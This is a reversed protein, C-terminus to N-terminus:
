ESAMREAVLAVFAMSNCMSSLIWNEDPAHANTGVDKDSLMICCPAHPDFLYDPGSGWSMPILDVPAPSAIETATRHVLQIFPSSIPAKSAGYGFGTRTVRIDSFGHKDLHARLLGEATEVTLGPVLRFDLKARARAPIITKPGPGNYGSEIGCVTLCPELYVAKKLDLGRRNMVTRTLGYEDEFVKELSRMSNGLAALDEASPKEVADNIGEILINEDMDKISALAWILRWAANPIAGAFGSHVDTKPFLPTGEASLEFYAGGKAGAMLESASGPNVALGELVGGDAKLLNANPVAFEPLHGSGSEEEGEVVFKVNVPLQGLMDEILNMAVLNAVFPGKDDSAGRGYFREGKVTMQWPPVSWEEIPDEPQVDYHQYFLLTKPAGVNREAFVVPSGGTPFQRVSYGFRRLQDEVCNACELITPHDRVAVSPYRVLEAFLDLAKTQRKRSEGVLNDYPILGESM